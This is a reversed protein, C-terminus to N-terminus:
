FAANYAVVRSSHSSFSLTSIEYIFFSIASILAFAFLPPQSDRDARLIQTATPLSFAKRFFFAAQATFSACAAKRGDPSKVFHHVFGIILLFDASLPAFFRMKPQNKTPTAPNSGVADFDWLVSNVNKLHYVSKKARKQGILVRKQGSLEM